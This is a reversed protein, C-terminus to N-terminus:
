YRYLFSHAFHIIHGVYLVMHIYMYVGVAVGVCIRL